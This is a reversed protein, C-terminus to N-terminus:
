PAEAEPLSERRYARHLSEPPLNRWFHYTKQIEFYPELSAPFNAVQLCLGGPPLARAMARGLRPGLGTVLPISCVVADPRECRRGHLVDSLETADACVIEVHAEFRRGLRRCLARHREVCLVQGDGDLADVIGQTLAGTGAGLEVVHRPRHARLETEVARRLDGSSPVPSSLGGPDVLFQTFFVLADVLRSLRSGNASSQEL